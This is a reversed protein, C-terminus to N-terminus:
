HEQHVSMGIFLSSLLTFIYAQLICVLLELTYIFLAFAVSVPAFLIIKTIFILGFLSLIVVHGATMNAFLRIALAFPKTFLSLLEVVFMVPILWIPLGHPLLGKFYGSFGNKTIGGILMMFFTLVALTATVSISSTVTSTYPILGLYNSTMIFFFATLLYPLFKEYGKGITPKAIEDRVFVILVELLTGFGKPVRSKKYHNALYIMSILIFLAAIWMFVVHKSIGIEIPYGFLNFHFVPLHIKIQTFILDFELEYADYIHHLIWSTDQTANQSAQNFLYM